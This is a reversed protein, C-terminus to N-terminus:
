GAGPVSGSLVAAPERDRGVSGRAEGYREAALVAAREAEAPSLVAPALRVGLVQEFGAALSRSLRDLDVGGGLCEALDVSGERLQGRWSALVTEPLPPLLDLLRRHSPGTLVSGHQLV